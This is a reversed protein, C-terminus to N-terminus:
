KARVTVQVELNERRAWDLLANQFASTVEWIKMGDQQCRAIELTLNQQSQAQHENISM